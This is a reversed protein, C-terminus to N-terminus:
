PTTKVFAILSCSLKLALSHHLGFWSVIGNQFIKAVNKWCKRGNKDYISKFKLNYLSVNTTFSQTTKIKVYCWVCPATWVFKVGMVGGLPPKWKSNHHVVAICIGVTKTYSTWPTKIKLVPLESDSWRVEAKAAVKSVNVPFLHRFANNAYDVYHLFINVKSTLRFFCLPQINWNRM